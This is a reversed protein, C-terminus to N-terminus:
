RKQGGKTRSAEYRNAEDLSILGDGDTDIRRFLADSGLFERRSVDGDRNRDMRQFWVPGRGLPPRPGSNMGLTEFASYPDGGSAGAGQEVRLLYSHPIEAKSIMGDGDRDLEDVLAPLAQIERLSLRSDRDTDFLDFLGNGADAFQLTVCSSTARAQLDEMKDLYAVLEKEYLKGDGDRDLQKFGRGFGSQMAEKEDLYGNNDRDAAQFQQVAIQRLFGGLQARPKSAGVSVALREKGWSLVATGQAVRVSLGAAPQAQGATQSLVAEGTAREGIRVVASLDPTRPLFRALEEADLEGNGDRDLRSFEAQSLGIDARTLAKKAGGYRTLLRRALERDSRAAAALFIPSNDPEKKLNPGAPYARGGFSLPTFDPVLEQHTIVEDEDHDLKRFLAPAATLEARSLKGDRDTDLLKMLGANLEATTPAKKAFPLGGMQPRDKQAGTQLQFAPLGSKRFYDAFEQRTVKGDKNADMAARNGAVMGGFGGLIGLGNLSAPDPAADAEEKSLVGDGNTDAYKFVYDIFEEWAAHLPKGDVRVDLRVVLPRGKALFVVDYPGAGTPAAQAASKGPQTAAPPQAASLSWAAFLALLVPCCIRAKM